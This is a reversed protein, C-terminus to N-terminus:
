AEVHVQQDVLEHQLKLVIYVPSCVGDYESLGYSGIGYNMSNIVFDGRTVLKCKSLDEPKKNGIDGKEAYPIIGVNAMLSLYDQCAAGENKATREQVIARCPRMEWHEPVQGLWEVGSDKYKPYRPLSM